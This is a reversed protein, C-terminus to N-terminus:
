RMIDGFDLASTVPILDHTIDKNEKKREKKKINALVLRVGLTAGNFEHRETAQHKLYLAFINKFYDSNGPWQHRM